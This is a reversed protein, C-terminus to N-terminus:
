MPLIALCFCLIKYRSRFYARIRASSGLIVQFIHDAAIAIGFASIGSCYHVVILLERHVNMDMNMNCTCTLLLYCLLVTFIHYHHNRCFAIRKQQHQSSSLCPHYIPAGSSFMMMADVTSTSQADICCHKSRKRAYTTCYQIKM